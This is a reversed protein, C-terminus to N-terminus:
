PVNFLLRGLLKFNVYVAWTEKGHDEKKKIESPTAKEDGPFCSSFNPQSSDDVLTHYKNYWYLM